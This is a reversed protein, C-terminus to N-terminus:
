EIAFPDPTKTVEAAALARAKREVRTADFTELHAVVIDGIASSLGSPNEVLRDKLVRGRRKIMAEIKLADGVSGCLRWCQAIRLPRNSRTYKVGATGDIHQRFRRVLNNTYGTYYAGNECELIYIWFTSSAAPM